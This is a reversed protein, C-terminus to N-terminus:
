NISACNISPSIEYPISTGCKGPLAAAYGVNLGKLAAAASKLCGCTARRDAVTRAANVLGKVGYCCSPSVAGGNQLYRICPALSNSVQGCSIAGGNQAYWLTMCMMVVCAIKFKGMSILFNLSISYLSLYYHGQPM